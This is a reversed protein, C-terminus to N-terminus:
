ENNKLKHIHNFKHRYQMIMSATSRETVRLGAGQRRGHNLM